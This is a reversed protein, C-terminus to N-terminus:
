CHVKKGKISKCRVKKRQCILLASKGKLYWMFGSVSIKPPISVLMHIHEPCGEGEKIEIGKWQCLKKINRQNGPTKRQFVGETQVEACVSHSIQLEMKYVWPATGTRFKQPNRKRKEYM